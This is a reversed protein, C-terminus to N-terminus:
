ICPWSAVKTDYVKLCYRKVLKQLVKRRDQLKSLTFYIFKLNQCSKRVTMYKLSNTQSFILCSIMSVIRISPTKKKYPIDVGEGNITVDPIGNENTNGLLVIAGEMMVEVKKNCLDNIDCYPDNILVVSFRILPDKVYAM